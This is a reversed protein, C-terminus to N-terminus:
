KRRKFIMLTNYFWPTFDDVNERIEASDEPLYDFGRDNMKNIVDINDLCNVHGHGPQGVIAWSLIIKNSTIDTINDLFISEYQQPIHEGVELCLSNYASEKLQNYMPHNQIPNTLDYQQVYNPSGAPPLGEFGYINTFGHSEFNKLYDGMGCGFDILQKDKDNSLYESMWNALNSSHIHQKDPETPIIWFGTDSIINNTLIQTSNSLADNFDNKITDNSQNYHLGSGTRFNIDSMRNRLSEIRNVMYDLSLRKYHLLKLNDDGNKITINNGVPNSTHSGPLYNINLLRNPKFLISKCFDINFFGKIIQQTIPINYVPFITSVMDYGTPTFIDYESNQSLYDFIDKTYLFEDLDCVIVYESPDNKWCNNKIDLYLFDNLTNNSNYTVVNIKCKDFWNIINLSNDTSENDFITIKHSFKAYHNLFHPLIKEENWCLCYVSIRPKLIELFGNNLINNLTGICEQIKLINDNNNILNIEIFVFEKKLVVYFLNENIDYIKFQVGNIKVELKLKGDFYNTNSKFVISFQDDRNLVPLIVLDGFKTQNLQNTEINIYENKIKEM